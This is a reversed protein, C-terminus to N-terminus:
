KAFRQLKTSIRAAGIRNIQLMRVVKRVGVYDTWNYMNDTTRRKTYTPSMTDPAKSCTLASV